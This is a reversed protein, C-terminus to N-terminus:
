ASPESSEPEVGTGRWRYYYKSAYFSAAGLTWLAGALFGGETVFQYVSLGFLVVFLVIFANRAALLAPGPTAM